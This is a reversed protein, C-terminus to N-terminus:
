VVRRRAVQQGPPSMFYQYTHMQCIPSAGAWFIPQDVGAMLVLFSPEYDSRAADCEQEGKCEWEHYELSAANSLEAM